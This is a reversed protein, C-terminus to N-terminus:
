GCLAQKGNINGLYQNLDLSSEQSTGDVKQCNARLTHGDSDLTIDTSTAQFSMTIFQAAWPQPKTSATSNQLFLSSKAPKAV